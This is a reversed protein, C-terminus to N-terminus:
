DVKGAAAATTMTACIKPSQVRKLTDGGGVLSYSRSRRVNGIATAETLGRGSGGGGGEKIPTANRRCIHAVVVVVVCLDGEIM